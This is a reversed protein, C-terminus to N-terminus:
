LNRLSGLLDDIAEDAGRSQRIAVDVLHNMLSWYSQFGKFKPEQDSITNDDFSEIPSGGTSKFINTRVFPAGEGDEKKELLVIYNGVTVHASTPTGSNWSLKGEITQQFLLDILQRHKEAVVDM